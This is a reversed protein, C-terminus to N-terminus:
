RLSAMLEERQAVSNLLDIKDQYASYLIQRAAQNRPNQRVVKRLKKISDDVVAVDREYKVRASAPMVTDEQGGVSQRLDSITKVYSQEGPLYGNVLQEPREVVPQARPQSREASYGANVVMRKLQDASYNTEVVAKSSRRSTTRAVNEPEDAPTVQTENVAFTAPGPVTVPSTAKPTSATLNDTTSQEPNWVLAIVGLIVVFSAAAAMAPTAMNVSVFTLIRQWVSTRSKEDAISDNIRSWLRQTPVLADLERDLASFVASTEEEAGALATSCAECTGIHDAVRLSEQPTTEGDLFAQLTGIDLCNGNM